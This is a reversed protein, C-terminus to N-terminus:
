ARLPRRQEINGKAVCSQTSFMGKYAVSAYKLISLNPVLSYTLCYLDANKWLRLHTEM